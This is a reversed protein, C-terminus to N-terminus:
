TAGTDLHAPPAGPTDAGNGRCLVSGSRCCPLISGRPATQCSPLQLAPSAPSADPASPLSSPGAARPRRPPPSLTDQPWRAGRLVQRDGANSLRDWDAGWAMSRPRGSRRDECCVQSCLSGLLGSPPAASGGGGERLEALALLATAVASRDQPGPCAPVGADGTRPDRLRGSGRSCGWRAAGRQGPGATGQGTDGMLGHVGRGAGTAGCQASASVMERVGYQSEVKARLQTFCQEMREHFPRLDETM